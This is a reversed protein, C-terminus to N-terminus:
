HQANEADIDHGSSELPRYVGANCKDETTRYMQLCNHKKEAHSFQIFWM